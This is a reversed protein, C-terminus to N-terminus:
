HENSGERLKALSREMKEHAERLAEPSAKTGLLDIVPRCAEVVAARREPSAPPGDLALRRTQEIANQNIANQRRVRSIEARIEGVKPHDARGHQKCCAVIASNVEEQSCDNLMQFYCEVLQRDVKVYSYQAFCIGLTETLKERTLQSM